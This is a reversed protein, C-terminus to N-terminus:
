KVISFDSAKLEPAGELTAFLGGSGFGPESGNANYFLDGTKQNYVIFAESTEAKKDGNVTDFEAIVSFGKGIVSELKDFATKSLAITDKQVSKFDTIIDVGFEEPNFSRDSGFEFSDKGKGGTLIDDGALGELKNAKSNGVIQNDLENGTGDIKRNGRLILDPENEKLTYSKNSKVAEPPKEGQNLLVSFKNTTEYSFYKTQAVDINGDGNFDGLAFDGFQKTELTKAPAFNGKGKGLFVSITSGYGPEPPVISPETRSAALEAEPEAVPAPEELIIYSNQTAAVDLKGDGDFDGVLIRDSPEELEVKSGEVLSFDGKGNGKWVEFSDKRLGGGAPVTGPPSTDESSVSKVALLDTKGDGTFDGAELMRVNKLGPIGGPKPTFKGDGSGSLLQTVINLSYSNYVNRTVVLDLNKDGDFYGTASKANDKVQTPEGVPNFNGKGNGLWARTQNITGDVEDFVFEEAVIDLKRDGNIDALKFTYPANGELEVTKGEKFKGKGDGLLVQIKPANYTGQLVVLDQKGDNNVDGGRVLNIPNEVKVDVSKGLKGNKKGFYVGIGSEVSSEFSNLAIDDLGDNNIDEINTLSDNEGLPVEADLTFKGEGEGLLLSVKSNNTYTEPNWSNTQVALDLNGDGNFEGVEVWGSGELEISSNKVPKFKGKKNGLDISVTTKNSTYDFVSTARDMIGDGNFDAIAVPNYERNTPFPSNEAAKFGKNNRLLIEIKNTSSEPSFKTLSLDDLGDNNVDAFSILGVNKIDLKTDVTLKGKGDGKLATVKNLTEFTTPDDASTVAVVDLNGDKDLEGIQIDTPFGLLELSKGSTKFKGKGNGLQLSVKTTSSFNDPDIAEKLVVRDLKKDKNFDGFVFYAVNDKLEIPSDKSPTFEIELLGPYNAIAESLWNNEGTRNELQSTGGFAINGVKERSAAINAGTLQHLRRIFKEDAAVRCAYLEIEKVGWESLLYSYKDINSANLPKNGFYLTGPKGHCIISLNEAGTESLAQSIQAIADKDGDLLIVSTGAAIAKVLKPYHELSRDIAVLSKETGVENTATSIISSAM